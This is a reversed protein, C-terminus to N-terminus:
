SWCSVHVSYLVAWKILIFCMSTQVLTDNSAKIEWLFAYWIVIKFRKLFRILVYTNFLRKTLQSRSFCVVNRENWDKKKFFLGTNFAEICAPPFTPAYKPNKGQNKKKKFHSQVQPFTSNWLFVVITINEHSFLSIALSLTSIQKLWHRIRLFM